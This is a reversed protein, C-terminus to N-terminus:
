LSAVWDWSCLSQKSKLCQTLFILHYKPSPLTKVPGRHIPKGSNGLAQLKNMESDSNLNWEPIQFWETRLCLNAHHPHQPPTPFELPPHSPPHVPFAALWLWLSRLPTGSHSVRPFPICVWGLIVGDSPCPLQTTICEGRFDNICCLKASGSNPSFARWACVSTSTTSLNSTGSFDHSPVSPCPHPGLLMQWLSRHNKSNIWSLKLFSLCSLGLYLRQPNKTHLSFELM